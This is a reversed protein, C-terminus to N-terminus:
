CKVHLIESLGNHFENVSSFLEECSGPFVCELIPNVLPLGYISVHKVRKESPAGVHVVVCFFSQPIHCSSKCLRCEHQRAVFSGTVLFVLAPNYCAIEARLTREALNAQRVVLQWKPNGDTSGIKAVNTWIVPAGTRRKLEKFLRWYPSRKKHPDYISDTLFHRTTERREEVVESVSLDAQIRFREPFWPGSTAQGVMLIPPPSDRQQEPDPVSLFPCAVNPWDRRIDDFKSIWESQVSRLQDMEQM